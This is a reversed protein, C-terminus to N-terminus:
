LTVRATDWAPSDETSPHHGPWAEAVTLLPLITYLPESDPFSTGDM